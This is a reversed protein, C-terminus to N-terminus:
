PNLAEMEKRRQQDIAQLQSQAARGQDVATKGTMGELAERTATKKEAAPQGASPTAPAPGQDCGSLCALAVVLVAAAAAAGHVRKM